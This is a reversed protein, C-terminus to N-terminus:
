AGFSQFHSSSISSASYSEQALVGTCFKLVFLSPRAQMCASDLPLLSREGKELLDKKLGQVAAWTWLWTAMLLASMLAIQWPKYIELFNDFADTAVKGTKVATDFHPQLSRWAESAYPEVYQWAPIVYTRAYPEIAKWATDVTPRLGDVISAMQAILLLPQFLYLITNSYCSRISM